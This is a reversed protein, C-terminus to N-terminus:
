VNKRKELKGTAYAGYTHECNICIFEEEDLPHLNYAGCYPCFWIVALEVVRYKTSMAMRRVNKIKTVQLENEIFSM